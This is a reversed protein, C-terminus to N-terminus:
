VPSEVPLRALEGAAILRLDYAVFATLDDGVVLASALHVAGLTRLERPDIMSAREIVDPAIPLLDLGLLLQRAVSVTDELRRRCTRILEIRSLDSSIKPIDSRALLWAALGESEEEEFILKVLASSDLYIV